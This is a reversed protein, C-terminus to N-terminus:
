IKLNRVKFIIKLFLILLLYKEQVVKLTVKILYKRINLLESKIMLM